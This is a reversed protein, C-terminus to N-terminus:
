FNMEYISATFPECSAQPMFYLEDYINMNRIKLDQAQFM